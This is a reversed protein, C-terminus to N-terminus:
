VQAAPLAIQISIDVDIERDAFVSNLAQTPRIYMGIDEGEAVGSASNCLDAKMMDELVKGPV